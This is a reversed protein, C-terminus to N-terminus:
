IKSKSLGMERASKLNNEIWSHCTRCVSLWNSRDLYLSGMRGAVHHVDTSIQTCISPLHAQCLPYNSLFIKRGESYEKDSDKRKKSYRPLSRAKQKIPKCKKSYSTSTLELKWCKQCFRKGESNKWIIEEKNCNSCIKKKVKM